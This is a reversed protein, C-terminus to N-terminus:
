ESTSAHERTTSHGDPGAHGNAAFGPVSERETGEDSAAEGDTSGDTETDETPSIELQFDGDHDQAGAIVAATVVEEGKASRLVVPDRKLDRVLAFCMLIIIIAFPASVIITLNQLGTLADNGGALMMIAAVAGMMLGWFVTIHKRPEIAGGQSMTGMIISASDAGTIFFIGILVMVVLAVLTFAPFERLLGFLQSEADDGLSAIRDTSGLSLASGGMVCFWVLSLASPVLIVGGIFQRITRGRSIRAIFMGVFPSWSIWWAWYFITYSSLWEDSTTAGTRASMDFLGSFYSGLATPVMNLMYVSSGALLLFVLLGFALVINTNSLWQIGRAVGSVASFLFCLILVGIVTILVPDSSQEIWGIEELGSGIQLAGLGLSAATGFLTAFLAFVDIIRGVAGNAHREGILPTFVASILQGRGLRYTGYAIALGVVAYISWPHLTWHFLTTAMATPASEAETGPPPSLFHTIPEGAGYFVLGIGMGAGFMMAIWSMTRFEPEEDDRGLRIGGYRSFTLWLAFVVFGSAALIFAWGGNHVLAALATSSMGSLSDRSIIGWALFAIALFAATGFVVRDTRPARDAESTAPPEWLLDETNIDGSSSSNDTAM